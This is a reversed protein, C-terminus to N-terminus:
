KAEMQNDYALVHPVMELQQPVLRLLPMRKVLTFVVTIIAILISIISVTIMILIIVIWTNIVTLYTM